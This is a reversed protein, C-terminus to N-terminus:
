YQSKYDLVWPSQQKNKQTRGGFFAFDREVSTDGNPFLERSFRVKESFEDPM